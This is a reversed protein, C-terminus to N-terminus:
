QVGRLVLFSRDRQQGNNMSLPLSSGKRV